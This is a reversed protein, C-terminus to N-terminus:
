YRAEMDVMKTSKKEVGALQSVVDDDLEDVRALYSETMTILGKNHQLDRCLCECLAVAASVILAGITGVVEAGSM